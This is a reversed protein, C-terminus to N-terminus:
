ALKLKNRDTYNKLLINAHENTTTRIYKLFEKETKHGTIAMISVMPVKALYQNTAFTRRATHTTILKYKPVKVSVKKGDENKDTFVLEKLENIDEGIKKLYENMKQNTITRPLYQKGDILYKDLVKRVPPLIPIVVDQATKKTKIQIVDEKINEPQINSLDSFRLGTWCGILFLDRVNNLKDNDSFDVKQLLELENENLYIAPTQESMTKFSKSVFVKQYDEQAEFLVTKFIRIHKGITNVSFKKKNRLYAHFKDYFDKNIFEFPIVKKFDKLIELTRERSKITDPSIYKNTKENFRNPLKKLYDQFYKLFDDTKEKQQEPNLKINILEKLENVTPIRNENNNLYNTYVTDIDSHINSLRTNFEPHEPFKVTQKARQKETNWYDPHIKKGTYYVLTQNNFRIIARVHTPKDSKPQKLNFNINIM